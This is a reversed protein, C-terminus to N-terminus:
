DHLLDRRVIYHKAKAGEPRELFGLELLSKLARHFTAQAVGKVLDHQRIQESRVLQGPTDTLRHAAQFVDKEAPSLDELGLDREMDRLMDRLEFIARLRDM